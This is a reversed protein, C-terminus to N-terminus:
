AATLNKKTKNNNDLAAPPPEVSPTAKKGKRSAYFRLFFAFFGCFSVIEVVGGVLLFLCFVVRCFFLVESIL